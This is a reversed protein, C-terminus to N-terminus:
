RALDPLQELEAIATLRMEPSSLTIANMGLKGAADTNDKRDDLFLCEEPKLGYREFLTRYFRKSPKGCGEEWSVVAGDVDTMFPASEVQCKWLREPYNSLLYVGYGKKKMVPITDALDSLCVSWVSPDRFFWKLARTDQPFHSYCYEEIEEDSIEHLDYKEWYTRISKPDKSGFLQESLRRVGAEDYGFRKFDERWTYSVLVYGVDYVINRIVAGGERLMLVADPDM